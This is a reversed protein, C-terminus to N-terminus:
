SAEYFAVYATGFSKSASSLLYMFEKHSYCTMHSDDFQIWSGESKKDQCKGTYKVFCTYHGNSTSMGNHFVVGVLRYSTDKNECEKSCWLSFNMTSPLSLATDRKSRSASYTFRGLHFSIIHPLHSFFSSKKAETLKDCKSCHYKNDGKLDEPKTYAYLAATLSCSKNEPVTVTVDFFEEKRSSINECELCITETTLHGKFLSCLLDAIHLNENLGNRVQEDLDSECQTLKQKLFLKGDDISSVLYRLFEHADQQVNKEFLDNALSLSEVFEKPQISYSVEEKVDSGEELCIVSTEQSLTDAIKRTQENLKVFLLCLERLFNIQKDDTSPFELKVILNRFAPCGFLAQILSGIYCTNGLNVMGVAAMPLKEVKAGGGKLLESISSSKNPTGEKKGSSSSKLQMKQRKSKQKSPPTKTVDCQLMCVISACGPPQEEVASVM